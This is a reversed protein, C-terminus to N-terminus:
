GQKSPKSRFSRTERELGYRALSLTKVTDASFGAKILDHIDQDTADTPIHLLVELRIRYAGYASARMREAFM